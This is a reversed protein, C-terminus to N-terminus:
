FSAGGLGGSRSELVGFTCGPLFRYHGCFHHLYKKQDGTLNQVLPVFLLISPAIACFIQLQESTRNSRYPQIKRYCNDASFNLRM